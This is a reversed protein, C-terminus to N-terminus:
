SVGHVIALLAFQSINIYCFPWLIALIKARGVSTVYPDTKFPSRILKTFRQAENEIKEM